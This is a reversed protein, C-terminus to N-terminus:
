FRQGTREPHGADATGQHAALEQDSSVRLPVGAALAEVAGPSAVAVRNRGLRKGEYLAADACQVVFSSAMPHRPPLTACGITVTVQRHDSGAHPILLHHVAHRAAEAVAKAGEIDTTPLIM